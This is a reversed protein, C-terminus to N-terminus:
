PLNVRNSQSYLLITAMTGTVDPEDEASLIVVPHDYVYTGILESTKTEGANTTMKATMVYTSKGFKITGDTKGTEYESHGGWATDQLTDTSVKDSCSVLTTMLAFLLIVKKM